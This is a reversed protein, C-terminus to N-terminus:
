FPFSTNEILLAPKKCDVIEGRELVLIRDFDAVTALRHAISIIAAKSFHTRLVKQIATDTEPDLNSTAEDLILISPKTLVARGVHILQKQGISFRESIDSDLNENTLETKLGVIDLAEWLQDDSYQSEPDL